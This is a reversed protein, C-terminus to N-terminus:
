ANGKGKARLLYDYRKPRAQYLRWQLIGHCQAPSTRDAVSRRETTGAQVPIAHDALTYPDPLTEITDGTALGRAIAATPKAQSELDTSRDHLLMTALDPQDAPLTM